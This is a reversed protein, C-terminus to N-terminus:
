TFQISMLINKITIFMSISKRQLVFLYKLIKPTTLLWQLLHNRPKMLSMIKLWLLFHFRLGLEAELGRVIHINAQCFRAWHNNTALNIAVIM